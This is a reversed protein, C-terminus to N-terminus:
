ERDKRVILDLREGVGRSVCFAVLVMLINEVGRGSRGAARDGDLKKLKRELVDLKGLLLGVNWSGM